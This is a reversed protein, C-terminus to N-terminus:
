DPTYLLKEFAHREQPPLNFFFKEKESNPINKTVLEILYCDLSRRHHEYTLGDPVTLLTNVYQDSGGLAKLILTREDDALDEVLDSKNDIFHVLANEEASLLGSDREFAARIREIKTPSGSLTVNHKTSKTGALRLAGGDPNTQLIKQVNASLRQTKAEAAAKKAELEPDTHQLFSGALGYQLRKALPKRQQPRPPLGGSRNWYSNSTAM